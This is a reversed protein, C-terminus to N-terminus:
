GFGGRRYSVEHVVGFCSRLDSRHVQFTRGLAVSTIRFYERSQGAVRNTGTARLFRERSDKDIRSLIKDIVGLSFSVRTIREASEPTDCLVEM